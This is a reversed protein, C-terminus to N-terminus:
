SFENFQIDMKIINISTSENIKKERKSEKYPKYIIKWTVIFEKKKLADMFCIKTAKIDVHIDLKTHYDMYKFPINVVHVDLM